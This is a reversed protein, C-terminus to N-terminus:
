AGKKQASLSVAVLDLYHKQVNAVYSVMATAPQSMVKRAAAALKRAVAVGDKQASKSEKNQEAPKGDAGKPTISALEKAAAEFEKGLADLNKEVGKLQKAADLGSIVSDLVKVMQDKTLAKGKPEISPKASQLSASFKDVTEPTVTEPISQVLKANGPLGTVVWTKAGDSSEGAKAMSLPKIQSFFSLDIQAGESKAAEKMGVIAKKAVQISDNSADQAASFVRNVFEVTNVPNTDVKGNVALAALVGNEIDVSGDLNTAANVAAKLKEARQRARENASWIAAWMNKAWEIFKRWTAVIAEWVKRVKENLSEIAARNARQRGQLSGYAEVAPMAEEAPAEDNPSGGVTEMVADIGIQMLAAAAADVGGTEEADELAAIFSELASVAAEGTEINEDAENLGSDAEAVELLATEVNEPAAEVPEGVVGEAPDTAGDLVLDENELSSLLKKSM